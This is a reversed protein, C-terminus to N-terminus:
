KLEILIINTNRKTLSKIYQVDIKKYDYCFIVEFSGQYESYMSGGGGILSLRSNQIELRKYNIIRYKLPLERKFFAMLKLEIRQQEVDNPCLVMINRENNDLEYLRKCFDNFADLNNPIQIKIPPSEKLLVEKFICTLILQYEFDNKNPTM